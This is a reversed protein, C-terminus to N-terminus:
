AGAQEILDAAKRLGDRRRIEEGAAALRARLETDGLLRELAGTLEEDTFAYTALRVGYGLEHVRQANDYQDWFLPLLIMPKGFHLAETTTNNGGHTIVLDVMPIIKTQPVFEAGWMNHALKIEEHLPGKSVIFRYPTTALVDIVRQMLDVDASGLSGLSFYVLPGDQEALSAPLEFADDTERVSSDLRHWTGDLPRADVYDLIEPYVYLNLDGQHIFDLEPLAPAGQAVVWENFATWMERHTRDYEARFAEWESRDDAPLGSFVPAVGEGRVELPNCSVIRVFPKGATLLAPFTIVNDEVIVDPRVREIISRLQPECYKVGDILSEWIPKTVTELQELTSKRYEPATDRIFDKWFQGADQEEETPPALDVLDEEFGLATLKGKWSAEAAFVVRHGRKRLIDGIGICNNTPGYASEPMFLITLSM